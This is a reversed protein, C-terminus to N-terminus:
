DIEYAKISEVQQNMRFIDEHIRQTHHMSHM